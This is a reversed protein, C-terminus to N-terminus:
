ALDQSEARSRAYANQEILSRLHGARHRGGPGGGQPGGPPLDKASPGGRGTLPTPREDATLRCDKNRDLYAFAPNPRETLEAM